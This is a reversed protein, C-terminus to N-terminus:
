KKLMSVSLQLTFYHAHESSVSSLTTWNVEHPGAMLRWWSFRTLKAADMITSTESWAPTWFM